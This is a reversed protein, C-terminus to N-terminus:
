DDTVDYESWGDRASAANVEVAQRCSARADCLAAPVRTGCLRDHEAIVLDALVVAPSTGDDGRGAIARDLNQQLAPALTTM